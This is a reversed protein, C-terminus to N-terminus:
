LKASLYDKIYLPSKNELILIVGELFMNNNFNINAYHQNIRKAAPIWIIHSFFLGYLTTTLALALGDGMQIDNSSNNFLVLLGLVTGMMGFAPSSVALTNFVNYVLNAKRELNAVKIAYLERIEDAGYNTELLSFWYSEFDSIKSSKLSSWTTQKSKQYIKQWSVIKDISEMRKSKSFENRYMRPVLYFFSSGIIDFPYTIFIQFLTGGLILAISPINLALLYDPFGLSLYGFVSLIGIIFLGFSILALIISIFLKM